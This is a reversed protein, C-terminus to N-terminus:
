QVHCDDVGIRGAEANMDPIQNRAQSSGGWYLSSCHSRCANTSRTTRALTEIGCVNAWFTFCHDNWDLGPGSSLRALPLRFGALHVKSGSELDHLSDGTLEIRVCAASSGHKGSQRDTLQVTGHALDVMDWITLLCRM